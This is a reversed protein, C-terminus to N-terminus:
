GGRGASWDSSRVDDLYTDGIADAVDTFDETTIKAWWPWM